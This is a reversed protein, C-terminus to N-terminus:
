GLSVLTTGDDAPLNPEAVAFVHATILEAANPTTLFATDAADRGTAIRVFSPRPALRTADFVYWHDGIAAEFVAHFDMPFLGPAYVSVFRAPIDLARCLAICVHAYDRCVGEATLLTDVADDTPGSSGGVYSLYGTAYAVIARVQDAPARTDGFTRVAFGGLRDSPCFRSPRLYTIRDAATVPNRGHSYRHTAAYGVTVEGADAGIVHVRTGHPFDVTRVSGAHRLTEAQVGHAVAISFVLDGPTSLRVGLEVEIRCTEVM